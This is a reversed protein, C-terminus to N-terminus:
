PPLATWRGGALQTSESGWGVLSEHGKGTPRGAVYGLELTWAPMAALAEGERRVSEGGREPGLEM